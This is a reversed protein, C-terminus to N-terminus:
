ELGLAAMVIKDERGTQEFDWLFPNEGSPQQEVGRM